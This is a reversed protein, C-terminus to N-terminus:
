LQNRCFPCLPNSSSTIIRQFCEDCIKHNNRCNIDVRSNGVDMCIQCMQLDIEQSCIPCKGDLDDCCSECLLHKMDCGCNQISISSEKCKHCKQSKNSLTYIEKNIDILRTECKNQKYLSNNYDTNLNDLENNSINKEVVPLRWLYPTAHKIGIDWACWCDHNTFYQYNDFIVSCRDCYYKNQKKLEKSILKIEKNLLKIRQVLYNIRKILIKQKNTERKIDQLITLKYYRLRKINSHCRIYPLIIM